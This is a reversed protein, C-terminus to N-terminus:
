KEEPIIGEVLLAALYDAEIEFTQEHERNYVFWQNSDCHGHAINEKKGDIINWVIVWVPPNPNRIEHTM